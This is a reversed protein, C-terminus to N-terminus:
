FRGLGGIAFRHSKKQFLDCARILRKEAETLEELDKAPDFRGSVLCINKDTQLINNDPSNCYGLIIKPSLVHRVQFGISELKAVTNQTVAFDTSRLIVIKNAPACVAIRVSLAVAAFFVLRYGLM